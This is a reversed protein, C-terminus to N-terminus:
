GKMLGKHLVLSPKPFTEAREQSKLLTQVLVADKRQHIYTYLQVREHRM